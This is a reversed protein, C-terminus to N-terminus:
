LEARRGLQDGAIAILRDADGVRGDDDQRMSVSGALDEREVMAVEADHTREGATSELEKGSDRNGLGGVLVAQRALAIWPCPALRGRAHGGAHQCASEPVCGSRPQLGLRRDPAHPRADSSAAHRKRDCAHSDTMTTLTRSGPHSPSRTPVRTTAIHPLEPESWCPGILHVGIRRAACKLREQANSSFMLM